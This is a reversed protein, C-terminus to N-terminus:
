QCSGVTVRFRDGYTGTGLWASAGAGTCDAHTSGMKCVMTPCEGSAVTGTVSKVSGAVHSGVSIKTAGCMFELNM